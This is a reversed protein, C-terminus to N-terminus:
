TDHVEEEKLFPFGIFHEGGGKQFSQFHQSFFISRGDVQQREFEQVAIGAGIEATIHIGPADSGDIYQFVILIEGAQFLGHITDRGQMLASFGYGIDFPGEM